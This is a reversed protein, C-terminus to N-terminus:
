FYFVSKSIVSLWLAMKGTVQLVVAQDMNLEAPCVSPPLHRRWPYRWLWHWTGETDQHGWDPRRPQCGPHIHGKRKVGTSTM